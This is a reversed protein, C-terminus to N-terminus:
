RTVADPRIETGREAGGGQTLGEEQLWSGWDSGIRGSLLRGTGWGADGRAGYEPRCLWLEKM